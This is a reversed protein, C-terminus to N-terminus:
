VAPEKLPLEPADMLEQLLDTNARVFLSIGAKYAAPISVHSTLQSRILALQDLPMCQERLM